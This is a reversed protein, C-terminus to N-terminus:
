ERVWIGTSSPRLTKEVVAHWGELIEDSDVLDRLFSSFELTVREADFRSRNFRRDVLHQVRRRLPNFVAAVGLTTAAVVLPDSFRTGVLAAIVAVAGVLLGAVIAYTVTRSVVRDIEYLRYRLLAVAIAIGIGVMAVPLLLDLLGVGEDLPFAAATGYVMAFFAVAFVLVKMQQREIGQSRRFRIVISFLGAVTLILLGIQWTTWFIPGPDPIFGIPNRVSWSEDPSAVTEAFVSSALMFSVMAVEIGVLLRWRPSLVRGTPFTLLIHLIPFIFFVWSAAGVGLILLLWQSPDEPPTVPSLLDACGAIAIGVAVTVMMWAVANSPQRWVILVGTIAYVPGVLFIALSGFVNSDRGASQSALAILAPLIVAGAGIVIAAIGPWNRRQPTKV